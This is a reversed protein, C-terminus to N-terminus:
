YIGGSINETVFIIDSIYLVTYLIPVASIVDVFKLEISQIKFTPLVLHQFMNIPALAAQNSEWTPLPPTESPVCGEKRLFELM